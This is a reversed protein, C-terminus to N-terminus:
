IGSNIGLKEHVFQSGNRISGQWTGPSKALAAFVATQVCSLLVGGKEEKKVSFGCGRGM